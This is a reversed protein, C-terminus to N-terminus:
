LQSKIKIKDFFDWIFGTLQTWYYIQLYNFKYLIAGVDGVNGIKGM